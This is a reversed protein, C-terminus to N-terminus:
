EGKAKEIAERARALAANPGGIIRAAITRAKNGATDGPVHVFEALIMELAALLEPAALMLQVAGAEAAERDADPTDSWDLEMSAAEAAENLRTDENQCDLFARVIDSPGPTFTDKNNNAM